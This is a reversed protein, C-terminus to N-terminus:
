HPFCNSCVVGIGLFVACMQDMVETQCMRREIMKVARNAAITTVAGTSPSAWARSARAQGPPVACSAQATPKRWTLLRGRFYCNFTRLVPSVLPWPWVINRTTHWIRLGICKSSCLTTDRVSTVLIMFVLDIPGQSKRWGYSDLRRCLFDSDAHSRRPKSPSIASNPSCESPNPWVFAKSGHCYMYEYNAPKDM